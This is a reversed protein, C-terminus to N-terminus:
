QKPVLEMEKIGVCGLVIVKAIPNIYGLSGSTLNYMNRDPADELGCDRLVLYESQKFRIVQGAKCMSLPRVLQLSSIRHTKQVGKKDSVSAGSDNFGVVTGIIEDIGNAVEDGMQLFYPYRM